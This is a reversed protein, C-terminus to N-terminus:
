ENRYCIVFLSSLVSKSVSRLDTAEHRKQYKNKNNINLHLDLLVYLKWKRFIDVNIGPIM